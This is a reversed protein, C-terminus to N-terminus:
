GDRRLRRPQVKASASRVRVLEEFFTDMGTGVLKEVLVALANPSDKFGRAVWTRFLAEGSATVLASWYDRVFADAQKLRNVAMIREFADDILPALGRVLVDSPLKALAGVLEGQTALQTLVHGAVGSSALPMKLLADPVGEFIPRVADRVAEGAAAEVDPYHAYFTKRAIGAERCLFAVTVEPFPVDAIIQLLARHIAARTTVIRPDLSRAPQAM